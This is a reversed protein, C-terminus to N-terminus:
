HAFDAIKLQYRCWDEKSILWYKSRSITQCDASVQFILQYRSFWSIGPYDASPHLRLNKLQNCTAAWEKQWRTSGKKKVKKLTEGVKITLWDASVQFILQSKSSIAPQRGNGDAVQHQAPAARSTPLLLRIVVELSITQTQCGGRSLGNGGNLGWSM